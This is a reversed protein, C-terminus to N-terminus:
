FFIKKKKEILGDNADTALSRLLIVSVKCWWNMKEGKEKRREGGKKESIFVLCEFYQQCM